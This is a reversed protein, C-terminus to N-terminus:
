RLRWVQLIRVMVVDCLGGRMKCCRCFGVCSNDGLGRVLCAASGIAALVFARCYVGRNSYMWGRYGGTGGVAGVGKDCGPSNLLCYIVLDSRVCVAFIDGPSQKMAKEGFKGCPCVGFGVTLVTLVVLGAAAGIGAGVGIVVYIGLVNESDLSSISIGQLVTAM